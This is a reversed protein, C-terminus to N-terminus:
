KVELEILRQIAVLPVLRRRGVKVTGLRGLKALRRCSNLSVGISAAAEQLSIAFVPPPTSRM